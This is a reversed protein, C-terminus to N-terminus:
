FFHETANLIVEFDRTQKSLTNTTQKVIKYANFIDM